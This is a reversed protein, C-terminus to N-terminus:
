QEYTAEPQYALNKTVRSLSETISKAVGAYQKSAKNNMNVNLIRNKYRQKWTNQVDNIWKKVQTTLKPKLGLFSATWPNVADIYM